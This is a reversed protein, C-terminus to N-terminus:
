LKSAAMLTPTGFVLLTQDAEPTGAGPRANFRLDHPVKVNMRETVM